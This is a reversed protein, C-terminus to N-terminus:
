SATWGGDLPISTGTLYTTHPGCLWTTIAAVEDPQILRKIATHQLMITDIVQNEPIHHTTAQETIQNDVLPTAVYAPNICNSTVGHPAAELAITKSLGELGHKAAVYAAKYPSARLGHVSSINIIRGWHHHYMHPLTHRALLFPATLMVQQLHTFRDPPFEHVPAIHQLGANNVLIDIATPLANIATPDTLDLTHPIGGIAHATDKARTDDLDAVHVTAGLAALARACASGIAGGGGTVLAVRGSLEAPSQQSNTMVIVIPSGPRVM